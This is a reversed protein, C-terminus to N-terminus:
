YILQAKLAQKLGTKYIGSGNSSPISSHMGLKLSLPDSLVWNMVPLEPQMTVQHDKTLCDGLGLLLWFSDRVLYTNILLPHCPRGFAELLM